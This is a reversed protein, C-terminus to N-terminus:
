VEDDPEVDVPVAHRPGEAPPLPEFAAPADELAAPVQLPEWSSPVQLPEWRSPVQLPEWRSPLPTLTPGNAVMVAADAAMRFSERVREPMDGWRYSEGAVNQPDGMGRRWAEYAAQGALELKHRDLIM